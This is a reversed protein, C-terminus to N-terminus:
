QNSSYVMNLSKLFGIGEDLTPFIIDASARVMGLQRMAKTDALSKEDVLVIFKNSAKAYGVELSLGYCSPNQQEVYAFIFDSLKIAELDWATYQSADQLGHNRPDIFAYDPLASKVKEQWGSYFGGALYIKPFTSEKNPILMKNKQTDAQEQEKPIDTAIERLKVLAMSFPVQLARRHFEYYREFFPISAFLLVVLLLFSIPAANALFGFQNLINALVWILSLAILGTAIGLNLISIFIFRYVLSSNGPAVSLAFNRWFGFDKSDSVELLLNPYLQYALNVVGRFDARKMTEDRIQRSPRVFDLVKFRKLPIALPELVKKTIGKGFSTVAHGFVYSMAVLLVWQASDAPPFVVFPTLDPKEFITWFGLIFFTGPLVTGIIDIFFRDLVAVIGELM